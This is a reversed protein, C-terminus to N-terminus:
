NTEKKVEVQALGWQPEKRHPPVSATLLSLSIPPVFCASPRRGPVFSLVTREDSLAGWISLVM